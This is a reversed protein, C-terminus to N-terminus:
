KEPPKPLHDLCFETGDEMTRFELDPDSIDTRGCTECRHFAEHAPMSRAKFDRRKVAATALHKRDILIEPLVWVAYPLGVALLLLFAPPFSLSAFVLGALVFWALFRVQVPIVLFMLFEHRPFYTAFAFFMSTYLYRGAGGVPVPLFWLAVALAAWCSLVYLTLRTTSWVHELSNDILFAIMVAFVFFLAGLTGFGIGPDFIFTIVRWWEGALIASRDFTVAGVVHPNVAQTAFVIAGLLTIWKFLGPFALWHLRHEIRDLWRM